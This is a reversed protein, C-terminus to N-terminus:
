CLDKFVFLIRLKFIAVINEGMTLRTDRSSVNVM